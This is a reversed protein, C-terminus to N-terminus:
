QQHHIPDASGQSWSGSLSGGAVGVLPVEIGTGGVM